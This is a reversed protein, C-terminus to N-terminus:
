SEAMDTVLSLFRPSEVIKIMNEDDKRNWIGQLNDTAEVGILNFYLRSKPRVFDTVKSKESIKPLVTKPPKM